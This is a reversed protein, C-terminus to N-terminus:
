QITMGRLHLVSHKLVPPMQPQGELDHIVDQVEGCGCLLQALGLHTECRRHLAGSAQQASPHGTGDRGQWDQGM